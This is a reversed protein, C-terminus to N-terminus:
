ALSSYFTAYSIPGLRLSAETLLDVDGSDHYIYIYISRGVEPRSRQVSAERRRAEDHGRTRNTPNICMIFAPAASRFNAKTFYSLKLLLYFIRALFKQPRTGTLCPLDSTLCSRHSTRLIFIAGSPSAPPRHYSRM